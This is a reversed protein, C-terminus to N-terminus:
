NLRLSGTNIYGSGIGWIGCVFIILLFIPICQVLWKMLPPVDPIAGAHGYAIKFLWFAVCTLVILVFLTILSM